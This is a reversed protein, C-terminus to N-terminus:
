RGTGPLISTYRPRETREFIAAVQDDRGGVGLDVIKDDSDYTYARNYPSIMGIARLEADHLLVTGAPYDRQDDYGDPVILFEVLYGSVYGDSGFRVEHTHTWDLLLASNLSLDGSPIPPQVPGAVSACAPLVVLLLLVVRFMAPIKRAPVPNLFTRLIGPQGYSSFVGTHRVRAPVSNKAGAM